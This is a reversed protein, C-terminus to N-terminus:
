FTGDYIRVSTGDEHLFMYNPNTNPDTGDSSYADTSGDKRTVEMYSGYYEGAYEAFSNAKEDNGNGNGNGNGNSGPDPNDPYFSVCGSCLVVLSMVMIVALVIKKM